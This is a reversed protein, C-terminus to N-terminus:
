KQARFSFWDNYWEEVAVLFFDRTLEYACWVCVWMVWAVSSPSPLTSPPLLLPLPYYASDYECCGIDFCIFSHRQASPYHKNGNLQIGPRVCYGWVCACMCVSEHESLRQSVPMLASFSTATAACQSIHRSCGKFVAWCHEEWKYGCLKYQTYERMERNLKLEIEFFRCCECRRKEM